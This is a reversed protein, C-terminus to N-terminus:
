RGHAPRRPQYRTTTGATRTLRRSTRFSLPAAEADLLRHLGGDFFGGDYLDFLLALDPVALEDFDGARVRPSQRLFDRYVALGKEAAAAAPYRRAALSHKLAAADQPSPPTSM